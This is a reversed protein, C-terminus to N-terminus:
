RVAYGVGHVSFIDTWEMQGIAHWAEKMEDSWEIDDFIILGGKNMRQRIGHCYRLTPELLHEGDVFAVDITGAKELISDFTDSFLGEVYEIEGLQSTEHVDRAINIRAGSADATILRTNPNAKRSGLALYASSIGLNTGLEIVVSPTHQYAAQALRYCNLANKSGKVASSVTQSDWLGSNGSLTKIPRNDSRLRAREAEIRKSKENEAWFNIVAQEDLDFECLQRM